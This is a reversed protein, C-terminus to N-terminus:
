GYFPDTIVIQVGYKTRRAMINDGGMDNIDINLSKGIGVIIAIAQNLSALKIATYDKAVAAYLVKQIMSSLRSILRAEDDGELAHEPIPASCTQEVLAVMEDLGLEHFHILKEMQYTYISLGTKDTIRKVNYVRPFHINSDIIDRKILENIYKNYNDPENTSYLDNKKVMHPDKKDAAVRAFTGYSYKGFEKDGADKFYGSYRKDSIVTDIQKELLDLIKM